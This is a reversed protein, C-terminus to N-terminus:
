SVIETYLLTVPVFLSNRIRYLLDIVPLCAYHGCKSYNTGARGATLIRRPFIVAAMGFSPNGHNAVM